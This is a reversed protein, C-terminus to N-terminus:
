VALQMIANQSLEERSLEGTIKGGSIVIVRDAMSVIEPLESSIIVISFGKKVLDTMITYIERKAGVDVGRTPEDMFIIKPNRMLWKAIVMKQQNGGSLSFAPVRISNAKINLRSFIKETEDNQEKDKM